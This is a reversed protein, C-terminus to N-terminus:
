MTAALTYRRLTKLRFDVGGTVQKSAQMTQQVLTEAVHQVHVTGEDDDGHQTRAQAVQVVAGGHILAFAGLKDPGDQEEDRDVEGDGNVLHNCSVDKERKRSV